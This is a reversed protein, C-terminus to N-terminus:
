QMVEDTYLELQSDRDPYPAGSVPEVAKAFLVGGCVYAAWGPGGGVGVKQEYGVGAQQRLLVYRTGWRWRPDAMDTYAWTALTASPELHDNDHPGRPPLPLVGTGGPAMVSIAWPALTVAWPNHNTLRHTVTATPASPDLRVRIAKQIGTSTETP